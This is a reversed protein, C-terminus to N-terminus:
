RRLDAGCSICGTPPRRRAWRQALVCVTLIALGVSGVAVGGPGGTVLQVVGVVTLLLGLFTLAFAMGIVMGAPVSRSLEAAGCHPCGDFPGGSTLRDLAWRALLYVLAVGFVIGVLLLIGAAVRVIAM